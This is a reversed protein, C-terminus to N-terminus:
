GRLSVVNDRGEGAVIREVEAAWSELAHKKEVFFDHRQYVGVIGARSGSVHNLVAETVELRIGLRQMGTAVTRRIDHLSWHPVDGKLEAVLAVRVREVAKSIGGPGNLPNGAAPFLKPAVSLDPRDPLCVPQEPIATLVSLAARSLPVLHAAGNKAKAAPVTWLAADFDFEARDADFVEERRQGTLILLKLSSRWPEAQAEAVKWLARLEPEALVRDRAKPKAPRGADRCPNAPLRDLRPLAWTYFSSLQAHVNRAMVPAREAIGDIFRTVDGRTM